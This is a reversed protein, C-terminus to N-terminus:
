LLVIHGLTNLLTRKYVEGSEKYLDASIMIDLLKM